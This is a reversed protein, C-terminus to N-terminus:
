LSSGGGGGGGGGGFDGVSVDLWFNTIGGGGVLTVGIVGIGSSGSSSLSDGPAALLAPAAFLEPIIERGLGAGLFRGKLLASISAAALARCSVLTGSGRSTASGGLQGSGAATPLITVAWADAEEDDGVSVDLLGFNRGLGIQFRQILGVLSLM